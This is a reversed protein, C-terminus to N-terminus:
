DPDSPGPSQEQGFHLRSMRQLATSLLPPLGLRPSPRRGDTIDPLTHLQSATHTTLLVVHSMAHPQGAEGPRRRATGGVDTQCRLVSNARSYAFAPLTDFFFSQALEDISGQHEGLRIVHVGFKM